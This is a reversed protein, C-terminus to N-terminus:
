DPPPQAPADQRHVTKELEAVKDALRQLQEQVAEIQRTITQYDASPEVAAPEHKGDAQQERVFVGRGQQSGVLGQERLVRVANQVTMPAVGYRRALERGPPLRQGSRLRGTEIQDRLDAAVQLYAPRQDDVSVSM